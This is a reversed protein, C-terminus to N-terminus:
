PQSAAPKADANAIEVRVGECRSQKVPEGEAESLNGRVLGGRVGNLSIPQGKIRLLNDAIIVQKSPEANYRSAGWVYIGAQEEGDGTLINGRLVLGDSYGFQMLPRKGDAVGTVINGEVVANTNGNGEIRGQVINDRLILGNVGGALLSHRCRNGTIIVGRLGRAHEVHISSGGPKIDHELDQCGTVLYDRANADGALQIGQRVFNRVAVDRITINRCGRGVAICDGAFNEVLVDRITVHEIVGKESSLFVGHNQEPTKGKEYRPHTNSGDLRLDCIMVHRCGEPGAGIMRWFNTVNATFKLVSAPGVGRLTANSPLVLIPSERLQRSVLFTGKPVAVTGGGADGCAKLAASIAVTDDTDDDATAGFKVINFDEAHLAAPLALLVIVAAIHQIM